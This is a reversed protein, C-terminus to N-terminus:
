LIKLLLELADKFGKRYCLEEALARSSNGEEDISEINKLESSESTAVECRKIVFERLCTEM